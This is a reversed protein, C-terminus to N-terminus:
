KLYIDQLYSLGDYTFPKVIFKQYVSKTFNSLSVSNELSITYSILNNIENILNIVNTTKLSALYNSLLDLIKNQTVEEVNSTLTKEEIQKYTGFLNTQFENLLAQLEIFTSKDILKLYNFIYSLLQFNDKKLIEKIFTTTSSESLTFTSEKYISKNSQFYEKYEDFNSIIKVKPKLLPNISSFLNEIKTLENIQNESLNFGLIPITWEIPSSINELLKNLETKINEFDATIIKKQFENNQLENAIKKNDFQTTTNFKELLNSANKRLLFQKNINEQADKLVNYNTSNLNSSSVNLDTPAQSFWSENNLNQLNILGYVNVVRNILNQFQLTNINTLYSNIDQYKNKLESLTKGYYLKSFKENFYFTNGSPLNNLTIKNHLNYKEFQREFNLNFEKFNSFIYEKQDANLNSVDLKSIINQKFANFMQMNYTEQPLPITNYNYVIENLHKQNQWSIDGDKQYNTNRYLTTQNQNNSNIFYYSSYLRDKNTKGYEYFWKFGENSFLDKGYKNTLYDFPIADIYNSYLFLSKFFDILNHPKGDDTEFDLNDSNVKSTSSKEDFALLNEIFKEYNVHHNKFFEQLNPGNFYPNNSDYYKDELEKINTLNNKKIFEDRFAKNQFFSKILGLRFDIARVGFPILNKKVIQGDSNIWHNQDNRMKINFSTAVKLQNFLGAYENSIDQYNISEGDSSPVFLYPNYFGNGKDKKPYYFKPDKKDDSVDEYIVQKIKSNRYEGQNYGSLFKYYVSISSAYEFQYWLETPRTSINDRFDIEPQNQSAIRLLKSGTALNIEKLTDDYSNAYAYSFNNAKNPSNKHTVYNDHLKNYDNGCSVMAISILSPLTILTINKLTKYKM